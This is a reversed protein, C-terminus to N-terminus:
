FADGITRCVRWNLGREPSIAMTEKFIWVTLEVHSCSTRKTLHIYPLRRRLPYTTAASEFKADKPCADHRSAEQEFAQLLVDTQTLDADLM